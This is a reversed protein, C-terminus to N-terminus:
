RVVQLDAVLLLHDSALSDETRLGVGDLTKDSLRSTDVVLGRAAKLAKSDYTVLDLRGPWFSEDNRLGRWTYTAGDGTAKLLLDTLGTKKLIDLPKRSGVLNYDGVILIGADKCKEAYEGM